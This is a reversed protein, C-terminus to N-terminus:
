GAFAYGVGRVTRVVKKTYIDDLKKRLNRAHVDIINSDELDKDGWISRLIDERSIALGQHRMLLALIDFEKVTLPVQKGDRYVERTGFDLVIGASSLVEASPERRRMLARIRAVFEGFSFPKVLYDDAGSDLADIKDETGGRATLMMIPTMNAASRLTRCLAIGDKGPLSIDIILLRYEATSLGAKKEFSEADAFVDVAFGESTLGEKLTEAMRSEDEIVALRMPIITGTYACKHLHPSLGRKM